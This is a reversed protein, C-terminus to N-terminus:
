SRGSAKLPGLASRASSTNVAGITFSATAFGEEALKSYGSWADTCLLSVKSSVAENVFATLTEDVEVIGGLKGIDETLAVRVKHCTLWATKYSGFGM